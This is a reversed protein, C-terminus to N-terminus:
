DRKREPDQLALDGNKRGDEPYCTGEPKDLKKKPNKEACLVIPGRDKHSRRKKDFLSFDALFHHEPNVCLPSSCGAKKLIYMNKPIPGKALRWLVRHVYHMKKNIMIQGRKYKGKQSTTKGTWIWCDSGNIKRKQQRIRKILREPIDEYNLM